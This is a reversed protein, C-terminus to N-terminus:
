VIYYKKLFEVLQKLEKEPVGKKWVALFDTKQLDEDIRCTRIDSAGAFRGTFYEPLVTVGMDSDLMLFVTDINDIRALIHMHVNAEQIHHVFDGAFVLEEEIGSIYIFEEGEFDKYSLKEKKSFRHDKGFAAITRYQGILHSQFNGKAIKRFTPTFILDYEESMLGELLQEPYGGHVNMRIEPHKGSFARIFKSIGTANVDDAFGINLRGTYGKYAEITQEAAEDMQKLIKRAHDLFVTGAYTLRVSRSTRDFLKVQLEEELNRIQLTVTTQSLYLQEATRTFNLNQGLTAFIELQRQNMITGKQNRIRIFLDQKNLVNIILLIYPM